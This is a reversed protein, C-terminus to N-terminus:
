VGPRHRGEEVQCCGAMSSSYGSVEGMRTGDPETVTLWTKGIIVLVVLCRSVAQDLYEAFDVGFLISDVDKFGHARGFESELRDYICGTEAISDSRRYSDSSGGLLRNPSKGFAM